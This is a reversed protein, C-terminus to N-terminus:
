FCAPHPKQKHIHNQHFLVQSKKKLESKKYENPNFPTNEMDNACEDM